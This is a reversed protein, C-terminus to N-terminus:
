VLRKGPYHGRAFRCLHDALVHSIEILIMENLVYDKKQIREFGISNMHVWELHHQAWDGFMGFLGM